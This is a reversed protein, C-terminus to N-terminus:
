WHDFKFKAAEVFFETLAFLNEHWYEYIKLLTLYWKKSWDRRINGCSYIPYIKVQYISSNLVYNEMILNAM